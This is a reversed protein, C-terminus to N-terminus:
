SHKLHGILVDTSQGVKLETVLTQEVGLLVRPLWVFGPLAKLAELPSLRMLSGGREYAVPCAISPEETGGQRPAWVQGRPPRQLDDQGGKVSM